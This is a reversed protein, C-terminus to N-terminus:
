RPCGQRVPGAAPPTGTGPRPCPARSSRAPPRPGAARDGRERAAAPQTSSSSTGARRSAPAGGRAPALRSPTRTRCRRSGPCRRCRPRPARAAGPGCGPPGAPRHRAAAAMSRPSRQSSPMCDRSPPQPANSASLVGCSHVFSGKQSKPATISGGDASTVACTTSASLPRPGRRRCPPGGRRPRAAAPAPSRRSRTRGSPRSSRTRCRRPAARASRPRPSAPSVQWGGRPRRARILVLVGVAAPTLIQAGVVVWAQRAAALGGGRLGRPRQDPQQSGPLIPPVAPRRRRHVRAHAPQDVM